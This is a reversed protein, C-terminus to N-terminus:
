DVKGWYLEVKGWYLEVKGEVRPLSSYLQSFNFGFKCM